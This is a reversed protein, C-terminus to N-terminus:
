VVSKRDLNGLDQRRGEEGSGAAWDDGTRETGIRSRGFVGASEKLAGNFVPFWLTSHRSLLTAINALLSADMECAREYLALYAGAAALADELARHQLPYGVDLARCVTELRYNSVEPLLVRAFDCTDYAVGGRYGGHVELFETDFGINHGILPSDGIFQLVSRRVSAWAPQAEFDSDDLGTLRKIRLTLPRTPAVLTQLTDTIRGDEVRALGVEIIEDISVDLGSTELDCAVFSRPFVM